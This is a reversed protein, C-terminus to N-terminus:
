WGPVLRGTSTRRTSEARLASYADREAAMSGLLRPDQVTASLYDRYLYIKSRATILDQGQNSWVNADTDALLVPQVDALYDLALPTTANPIPFLKILTDAELYDTPQGYVTPQSLAEFELISRVNLRWRTAGGNQEFYLEDIMRCDVPRLISMNGPVLPITIRRENFWWRETAYYDISRLIINQFQTAMDDALDDRQTESIIRAKLDALTAM